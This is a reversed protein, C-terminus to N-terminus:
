IIAPFVEGRSIFAGSRAAAGGYEGLNSSCQGAGEAAPM